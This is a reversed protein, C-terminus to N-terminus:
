WPSYPSYLKSVEVELWSASLSYFLILNISYYTYQVLLITAFYVISAAMGPVGGTTIDDPLLFVTWGIGYLIQGLAIM